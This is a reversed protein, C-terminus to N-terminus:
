DFEVFIPISRLKTNQQSVYGWIKIRKSYIPSEPVIWEDYRSSWGKYSVFVGHEPNIDIITAWLWKKIRPHEDFCDIQQGIKFKCGHTYTKEGSTSLRKNFDKDYIIEDWLLSKYDYIM